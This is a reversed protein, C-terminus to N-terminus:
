NVSGVGPLVIGSLAEKAKSVIEPKGADQVLIVSSKLVRVTHPCFESDSWKAMGVNVKGKGASQIMVIATKDADFVFSDGKEEVEESYLITGNTLYYLALPGATAHKGNSGLISM